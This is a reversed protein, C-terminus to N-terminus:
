RQTNNLFNLQTQGTQDPQGQQNQYGVPYGQQLFQQGQFGQQLGQLTMPNNGGFGPFFGKEEEKKPDPAYRSDKLAKDTVPVTFLLGIPTGAKVRVLPEVDKGDEKLIEGVTKSAEEVGKYLEQEVDINSSDQTSTSDGGSSVTVTTTGKEAIASGVGEVFKAAAPLIIRTWYRHDVETALGTLTTAPDVAFATIPISHGEKGTISTFQMVLYEDERTFTGLAKAGSFPGSVVLAVIPGKIDSNAEILLQAYAIDGAPIIVKLQEKLEINAVSQNPSYDANQAGEQGEQQLKALDTVKMYKQNQAKQTELIRQMQQSMAQMLAQLMSARAPDPQEAPQKQAREQERQVRLREEQLQRWRVLPDENGTEEAPVDLLPKPPEIPTPMASTGQKVAEQLNQADSEEIAEQMAPSVQETGPIQNIDSGTNMLSSPAREEKSGFLVVAGVLAIVGAVIIALKVRPNNKWADGLSQSEKQDEFEGFDVDPELDPANDSNDFTNNSM